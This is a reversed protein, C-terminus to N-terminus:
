HQARAFRRADLGTFGARNAEKDEAYTLDLFTKNLLEDASYGTIQCFKANVSLFGELQVMGVTALHKQREQADEIDLNAVLRMDSMLTSNWSGNQERYSEEGQSSTGKTRPSEQIKRRDFGPFVESIPNRM